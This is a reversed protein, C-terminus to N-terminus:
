WCVLEAAYIEVMASSTVPNFNLSLGGFRGFRMRCRAFVELARAGAERPPDFLRGNWLSRLDLICAVKRCSIQSRIQSHAYTWKPPLNFLPAGNFDRQVLCGASAFPGSDIFPRYPVVSFTANALLGGIPITRTATFWNIFTDAHENLFCGSEARAPVATQVVAQGGLSATAREVASDGFRTIRSSISSIRGSCRMRKRINPGISSRSRAGADDADLLLVEEFRSHLVAYPKLQWSDAICIDASLLRTSRSMLIM